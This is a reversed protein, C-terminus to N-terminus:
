IRILFDSKYIWKYGKSSQQKGKCCKTISSPDFNLVEFVELAGSWEKIFEDNISLQIIPIRSGYKPKKSLLDKRSSWESFGKVEVDKWTRNNKIHSIVSYDVNYNKSIETCSKGELLYKKIQVVMSKNLKREGLREKLITNYEEGINSRTHLNKIAYVMGPTINYLNSIEKINLNNEILINKIEVINNDTLKQLPTQIILDDYETKIHNWNDGTKIQTITHSKVKYLKAIDVIRNGEFILKKINVIDENKLKVNGQDEGRAWSSSDRNKMSESLKNLTEQSFKRGTMTAYSNKAINYGNEKEYTKFTDLYYQERDLIEDEKCEEIISFEFNNAGNKDWSRQLHLSHHKHNKLSSKHTQWRGNIDVSGGIYMKGNTLNTIKYVGILKKRM